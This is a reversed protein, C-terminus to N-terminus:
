CNASAICRAGLGRSYLEALTTLQAIYDGNQDTVCVQFSGDVEFIDDIEFEDSYRRMAAIVAERSPGAYIDGGGTDFFVPRAGTKQGLARALPSVSVAGAILLGFLSRRTTQM